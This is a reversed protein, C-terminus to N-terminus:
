PLHLYDQFNVMSISDNFRALRYMAFPILLFSFYPILSGEEIMSSMFRESNQMVDFM